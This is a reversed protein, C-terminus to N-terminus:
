SETVNMKFFKSFSNCSGMLRVVNRRPLMYTESTQTGFLETKSRSTTQLDDLIGIVNIFNYSIIRVYSKKRLNDGEEFLTNTELISMNTDKRFKTHQVCLVDGLLGHLMALDEEAFKINGLNYAGTFTSSQPIRGHVQICVVLLVVTGNLDHHLSCICEFVVYEQISNGFDSIVLDHVFSNTVVQGHMWVKESSKHFYHFFTNIM